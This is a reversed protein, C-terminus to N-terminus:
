PFPLHFERPGLKRVGFGLKGAIDEPSGIRALPVSAVIEEKFKALTAKMMKSPFAGPAIANVTIGQHGLHGAMVRTMHHLAAKSASYAYTEHLPVQPVSALHHVIPYITSSLHPSPLRVRIGDISGINIVSSPNETTSKAALLPLSAQTLSFIRNLNLNIVKQFSEDPYEAITAAWNAGANNILVDLDAFGGLYRMLVRAIETEFVLIEFSVRVIRPLPNLTRYVRSPSRFVSCLVRKSVKDCVDKSRSSIYVKAGGAVYGTAIMEGIGRSGGTVLVVKGKVSFLNNIDM